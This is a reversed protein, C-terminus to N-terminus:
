LGYVVDLRDIFPLDESGCRHCDLQNRIGTFALQDRVLVGDSTLLRGAYPPIPDLLTTVQVDQLHGVLQDGFRSLHDAQALSVSHIEPQLAWVPESLVGFVDPM